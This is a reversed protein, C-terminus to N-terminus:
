RLLSLLHDAHPIDNYHWKGRVWGDQFLLLGPDSRIMGKLLTADAYVQPFPALEPKVWHEYREKNASTVVWVELFAKKQMEQAVQRIKKLRKIDSTSLEDKVKQISIFLKIGSLSADTKDGTDDWLKYDKIKELVEPNKILLKKFTYGKEKPYSDLSHVVGDKEMLYAYAVKGSPKVLTPLHNGVKYNRFDIFPLHWLSYLGTVLSLVTVCAMTIKATRLSVLDAVFLDREKQAFFLYGILGLLVVDKSFSEWPTLPIADGFCGCDTVKNFYASYFTLVTFFCIMGLLCANVLRIKYLLLCAVGLLVELVVLLFALPLALPVLLDFFSGFDGSFVHFYEELKIATGKPDNLKILGSFIFLGGVIIRVGQQLVRKM